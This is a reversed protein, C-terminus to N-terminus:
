NTACYDSDCPSPHISPHTPGFESYWVYWFRRLRRSSHKSDTEHCPYPAAPVIGFFSVPRTHQQTDLIYTKGGLMRQPHIQNLGKSKAQCSVRFRTQPRGCTRVHALSEALLLPILHPPNQQSPPPPPGLACTNNASPFLEATYDTHGLANRNTTRSYMHTHTHLPVCSMHKMWYIICLRKVSALVCVVPLVPWFLVRLLVINTERPMM